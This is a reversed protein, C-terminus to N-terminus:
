PASGAVHWGTPVDAVVPSLAVWAICVALGAKGTNTLM